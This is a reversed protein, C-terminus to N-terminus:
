ALTDYVAAMRPAILSWLYERAVMESARSAVGAREASNQAARTLARTVSRIDDPDCIFGTEGDHVFDRLGGRQSAVVPVGAAMAELFAIGQGESRSPRAYIDAAGLESLIQAHAVSGLWVVRDSVRLHTALSQLSAEDNGTGAIVLRWPFSLDVCAHLLVDIGNKSVLRSASYICVDGGQVGWASRVREREEHLLLPAPDVGNPVLIVRGGRRVSQAYSVLPSSIATVTDACRVALWRGARVLFSQKQFDAGEQLTVILPTGSVLRVILAALAAYSAQYAHLVSAGRAERLGVFAGWLIFVYKDLWAIGFGVRRVRVNGQSESLPFRPSHRPTIVVFSREPMHRMLAELALESGGILPRFAPSFVLINSASHAM